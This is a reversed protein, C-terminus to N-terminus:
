CAAWCDGLEDAQALASKKTVPQEVETRSLGTGGQQVATAINFAQTMFAGLSEPKCIRKRQFILLRNKKGLITIESNREMLERLPKNFLQRVLGTPNGCLNFRGSFVPSDDFDIDKFGLLKGLLKGALRQPQLHFEPFAFDDFEVYLFTQQEERDDDSNDNSNEFSDEIAFEGLVVRVGSHERFYVDWARTDKRTFMMKINRSVTKVDEESLPQLGLQLAKLEMAASHKHLSRVQFFGTLSGILAGTMLGM